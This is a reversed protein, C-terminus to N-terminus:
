PRPVAPCPSTWPPSPTMLGALLDSVSALYAACRRFADVPHDVPDALDDDAAAGVPVAARVLEIRELLDGPGPTLAGAYRAFQRITFTRRVAAPELEVCAARHRRTATLVIGATRVAEASLQRARFGSPDIDREQLVQQAYPHMPRNTWAHTGASAVTVAEGGARGAFARRTLLEAMPSRCLNAQCVILVTGM